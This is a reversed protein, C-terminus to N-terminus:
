LGKQYPKLFLGSGQYPKLFIGEGTTKKEEVARNHRQTEALLKDQHKKNNVASAIQSAGAAAGGLGGLIAAAKSIIPILALLPLAGGTKVNKTLDNIFKKCQIHSLKVRHNGKQLRKLQTQTLNIPYADEANFQNNNLELTVGTNNIVANGIDTYQQKTLSINVIM